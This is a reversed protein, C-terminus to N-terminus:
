LGAPTVLGSDIQEKIYSSIAARNMARDLMEGVENFQQAAVKAVRALNPDQFRGQSLLTAIQSNVERASVGPGTKLMPRIATLLAKEDNEDIGPIAGFVMSARYIPDQSYKSAQGQSFNAREFDLQNAAREFQIRAQGLLNVVGDGTLGNAIAGGLSFNGLLTNYTAAAEATKPSELLELLSKSPTFGPKASPSADLINLTETFGAAAARQKYQNKESEYRQLGEIQKGAFWSKLEAGSVGLEKAILDYGRQEGGALAAQWDGPRVQAFSAGQKAAVKPLDLLFASGNADNIQNPATRRIEAAVEQRAQASNARFPIGQANFEAKVKATAAKATNALAAMGPQARLISPMNGNLAYYAAASAADDITLRGTTLYKNIYGAGTKDGNAAALAFQETQAQFQKALEPLQNAILKRTDAGTGKQDADQIAAQIRKAANTISQQYQVFEPTDTNGLLSRVRKSTETVQRTFTQWETNPDVSANAVEASAFELKAAISANVKDVPVPQGNLTYGNKQVQRLEDLTMNALARETHFDALDIEGRELAIERSRLAMLKDRREQGVQQLRGADIVMGNELEVKGGNKAGEAQLGAIQQDTLSGLYEERELVQAQLIERNAGLQNGIWEFGQLAVNLQSTAMTSDEAIINRQVAAVSDDAADNSELARLYQERFSSERALDEVLTAAEAGIVNLKQHLADEDWSPDFIGLFGKELGSRGKLFELRQRIKDRQDKYAQLLPKAGDIAAIQEDNIQKAKVALEQQRQLDAAQITDLESNQEDLQVKRQDLLGTVEKAKARAEAAAKFPNIVQRDNADPQPAPEANIADNPDVRRIVGTAPRRQASAPEMHVHDKELIVDKDPNMAKLRRHYERMTMGPPPTSDRALAPSQGTPDRKLHYSDEVGGVRRNKKTTRFTSTVTEGKLGAFNILFDLASM